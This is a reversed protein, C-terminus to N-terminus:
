KLNRTRRELNYICKFGGKKLQQIEYRHKSKKEYQFHRDEEHSVYRYMRRDNTWYRLADSKEVMGLFMPVIPSMSLSHDIMCRHIVYWTPSRMFNARSDSIWSQRGKIFSFSCTASSCSSKTVTGLTVHLYAVIFRTIIPRIFSPGIPCCPSWTRLCTTTAGSLSSSCTFSKIVVATIFWIIMYGSAIFISAWCIAASLFYFDIKILSIEMSLLKPSVTSEIMSRFIVGNILCTTWVQNSEKFDRSNERDSLVFLMKLMRTVDLEMTVNFQHELVIFPDDTVIDDVFNDQPRQCVCM